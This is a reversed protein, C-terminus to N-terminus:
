ARWGRRLALRRRKLALLRRRRFHGPGAFAQLLKQGNPSGLGTCADWGPGARYAGNNGRTINRLVGSSFRGYLLPNMFGIPAGIGQNLRAILGAWLPATASTGGIQVLKGDLDAIMVGTAPDALGSVDPVGRGIRHRPNVSRPIGHGTQYSPVPFLDSIGGGGASGPGDNWVRERAIIGGSAIVRTGGCGTVNPSSAPFDAHARGDSVQDRSGDDGAACLITLNKAAAMEFSTNVQQIASRTWLTGRFNINGSDSTTEANGYSCSVVSPKNATDTVIAAMVDVWGQETFETFYVALKAGPATAGAMQIDLMIEDSSDDGTGDGPVNGPGHVVVNVIKPVKVKVVNQFYNEVAALNYGGKGQGPVGMTSGNFALIAICQGTGDFQTPFNYLKAVDTPLFSKPRGAARFFVSDHATQLYSRGLRRNDLGFIGRVIGRLGVPVYIHGTRGRYEGTDHSFRQLKVNFAKAFDGVTGQLRVSRKAVSSEVVKLNHGRAFRAVADLDKESAGYASVIEQESFQRRKAPLTLAYRHIRLGARAEPNRRVYVSVTIVKAADADGVLQSGPLLDRNSGSLAVMDIGKKRQQTSAPAKQSENIPRRPATKQPAAM